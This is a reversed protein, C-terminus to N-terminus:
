YQWKDSILWLMFIIIPKYCWSSNYYCYKKKKKKQKKSELCSLSKSDSVSIFRLKAWDLYFQLLSKNIFLNMNKKIWLSLQSRWLREAIFLLFPKLTFRSISISVLASERLWDEPIILNCMGWWNNEVFYIINKYYYNHLLPFTDYM